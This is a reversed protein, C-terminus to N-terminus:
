MQRNQRDRPKTSHMTHVRRAYSKNNPLRGQKSMGKILLLKKDM